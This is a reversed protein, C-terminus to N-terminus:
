EAIYWREDVQEVVWQGYPLGSGNMDFVARTGAYEYRPTRQRALRIAAMYQERLAARSECASVLTRLARTGTTRRFNPSMQRDFYRDCRGAELNAVAEDFMKVMEAPLATSAPASGAADEAGADEAAAGAGTSGTAAVAAPPGGARTRGTRLDDIQAQLELPLAAKWDRGWPVISVLVPVRVEGLERPPDLRGILHVMGGRDKVAELWDVKRFNRGSFRLRQSLAVFFSHATLREIDVLPMGEGFLRGRVLSGGRDAELRMEDLLRTRLQALEDELISLAMAHADGRALAHLYEEAARQQAQSAAHAWPMAVLWCAGLLLAFTVPKVNRM